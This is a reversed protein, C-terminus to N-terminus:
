LPQTTEFSKRNLKYRWRVYLLASTFV